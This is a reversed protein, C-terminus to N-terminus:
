NINSEQSEQAKDKTHCMEPDYEVNKKWSGYIKEKKTM